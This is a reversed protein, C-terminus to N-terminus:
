PDAQEVVAVLHLESLQRLFADVDNRITEPAADYVSALEEVIASVSRKGDCLSWIRAGSTTLPYAKNSASDYLVLSGDALSEATIQDRRCPKGHGM